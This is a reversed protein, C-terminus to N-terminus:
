KIENKLQEDLEATKRYRVSSNMESEANDNESPIICAIAAAIILLILFYNTNVDM